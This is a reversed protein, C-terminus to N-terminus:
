SFVEKRSPFPRPFPVGTEAMEDEQMHDAEEVQIHGSEEDQIHRRISDVRRSQLQMEQMWSSSQRHSRTDEIKRELELHEKM